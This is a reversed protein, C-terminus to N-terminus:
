GAAAKLKVKGDQVVVKFAVKACGLQKKVAAEQKAIAAELKARSLGSTDQGAAKMAARYSEFLDNRRAAPVIRVLSALAEPAPLDVVQLARRRDWDSRRRATSRSTRGPSGASRRRRGCTPIRDAVLEGVVALDPVCRLPVVARRVGPLELADPVELRRQRIGVGDVGADLVRREEARGVAACVQCSSGAQAVAAPACQCGPAPPMHRCVIRSSGGFRLADGDGDGGGAAEAAVVAACVHRRDVPAASRACGRDRVGLDAVAHVADRHMRRPRVHEEHLLVPVHHAAVVGAVVPALDAAVQRAVEAERDVHVGVLRLRDVDHRDLAVGLV